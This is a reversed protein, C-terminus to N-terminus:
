QKEAVFQALLPLFTTEAVRKGIAISLVASSFTSSYGLNPLGIETYFEAINRHHAPSSIVTNIDGSCTGSRPPPGNSIFESPAFTETNLVRYGKFPEILEQMSRAQDLQQILLKSAGGPVTRPNLGKIEAQRKGSNRDMAAMWRMTPMKEIVGAVLQRYTTAGTYALSHVASAAVIDAGQLGTAHSTGTILEKYTYNNTDNWPADQSQGTRNEEDNRLAQVYDRWFRDLYPHLGNYPHSTRESEQLFTHSAQRMWFGNSLMRTYLPPDNDPVEWPIDQYFDFVEGEPMDLTDHKRHWATMKPIATQYIHYYAITEGAQRMLRARRLARSTGDGPVAETVEQNLKSFNRDLSGPDAVIASVTKEILAGPGQKEYRSPMLAAYPCAEPAIEM